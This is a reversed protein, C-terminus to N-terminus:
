KIKPRSFFGKLPYALRAQHPYIMKVDAVGYDQIYIPKCKFNLDMEVFFDDWADPSSKFGLTRSNTLPSISFGLGFFDNKQPSKLFTTKGDKITFEQVVQYSPMLTKYRKEQKDWVMQIQPDRKIHTFKALTGKNFYMHVMENTSKREVIIHEPYSANKSKKLVKVKLNFQM